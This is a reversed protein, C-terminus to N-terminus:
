DIIPDICNSWRDIPCWRCRRPCLNLCKQLCNREVSWWRWPVPQVPNWTSMESSWHSPQLMGPARGRHHWRAGCAWNVRNITLDVPDKQQGHQYRFHRHEDHDDNERQQQGPRTIPGFGTEEGDEACLAVIEGQAIGDTGSDIRRRKSNTDTLARCGSVFSLIVDISIWILRETALQWFGSSCFLRNKIASFPPKQWFFFRWNVECYLFAICIDLLNHLNKFVPYVCVSPMTM